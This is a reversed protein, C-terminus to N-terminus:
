YAIFRMAIDLIQIGYLLSVVTGFVLFPGFPITGGRFKKRRFSVLLLSVLAGTVFSIYLGVIILPFGLIFGMLFAYVVDGFGMGRGKTSLFILLFFGGANLASLVVSFINTQLGLLQIDSFSFNAFPLYVQWLLALLFAFLVVKFPIIGYRFDTFFIVILCSILTSYYLIILLYATQAFIFGTHQMIALSVTLFSVGTILEILPYFLSLKKHCYRCKQKLLFFSIIPILDIFALKHRCHDCHSRGRWIQEKSALRDVIVGLFSGVATGIIFVFLFFLFNM